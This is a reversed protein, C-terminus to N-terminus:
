VAAVVPAGAARLLTTAAEVSGVWADVRGPDDHRGASDGTGDYDFRLAAIGLEALREAVVRLTRHSCVAEYGTPPCLVVGARATGGDPAHLWGFLPRDVPGFWTPTM